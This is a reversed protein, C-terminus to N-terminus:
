TSICNILRHRCLIIALEEKEHHPAHSFRLGCFTTTAGSLHIFEGISSGTESLHIFSQTM